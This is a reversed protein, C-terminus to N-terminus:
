IKFTNVLKVLHSYRHRSLYKTGIDALQDETKVYRIYIRG